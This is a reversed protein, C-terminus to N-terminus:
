GAHQVEQSGTTPLRTLPTAGDGAATMEAARLVLAARVASLSFLMVHGVRLVPIRGALAEARLWRAPLGLQIALAHLGIPTQEPGTLM